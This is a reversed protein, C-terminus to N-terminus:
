NFLGVVANNEFLVSFKVQQMGINAVRYGHYSHVNRIWESSLHIGSLSAVQDKLVHTM